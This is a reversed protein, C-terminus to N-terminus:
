SIRVEQRILEAQVVSVDVDELPREARISM